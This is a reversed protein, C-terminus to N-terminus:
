LKEALNEAATLLNLETAELRERYERVPNLYSNLSLEADNSSLENSPWLGGAPALPVEISACTRLEVILEDIYSKGIDGAKHSNDTLGVNPQIKGSIICNVQEYAANTIEMTPEFSAFHQALVTGLVTMSVGEIGFKRVGVLECESKLSNKLYKRALSLRSKITNGTVGTAESIEKISLQNYYYLVVAERQEDSLGDVAEAVRIQLDKQESAEEPMVEKDTDAVENFFADDDSLVTRGSKRLYMNCCNIAIRSIWGGFAEPTQLTHLKNWVAIMTQQAAEEAGTKNRLKSMALVYVRPYYKSFLSGYSQQDGKSAAIIMQREYKDM